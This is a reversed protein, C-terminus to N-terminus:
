CARARAPSGVMAVIEGPYVDLSVGRVAHVTGSDRTLRVDLDRVSLTPREDKATVDDTRATVEDTEVTVDDTGTMEPPM